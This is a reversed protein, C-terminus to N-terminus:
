LRPSFDVSLFVLLVILLIRIVVLLCIATNLQWIISSELKYHKKLRWIVLWIFPYVLTLIVPIFIFLTVTNIIFFSYNAFNFYRQTRSYNENQRKNILNNEM